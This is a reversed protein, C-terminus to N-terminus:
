LGTEEDVFRCSSNLLHEKDTCSSSLPEDQRQWPSRTRGALVTRFSGAPPVSVLIAQLPTRESVKQTQDTMEDDLLESDDPFCDDDNDYDDEDITVDLNSEYNPNTRGHMCRHGTTSTDLTTETRTGSYAMNSQSNVGASIM